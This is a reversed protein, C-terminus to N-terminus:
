KLQQKKNLSRDCKNSPRNSPKIYKDMPFWTQLSWEVRGRRCDVWDEKLCLLWLYLISIEFYYSYVLYPQSVFNPQCSFSVWLLFTYIVCVSINRIKLSSSISIKNENAVNLLIINYWISEFLANRLTYDLFFDIYFLGRSRLTNGKRM